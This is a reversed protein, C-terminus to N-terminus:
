KMYTEKECNMGPSLTKTLWAVLSSIKLVLSYLYFDLSFLHGLYSFTIFEDENYSDCCFSAYLAEM